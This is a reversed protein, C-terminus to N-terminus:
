DHKDKFEVLIVEMPKGGVNEPLHAGAPMQKTAGAIPGIVMFPESGKIIPEPLPSDPSGTFYNVKILLILYKVRSDSV